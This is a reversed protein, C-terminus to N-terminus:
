ANTLIVLILSTLGLISLTVFILGYVRVTFVYQTEDKILRTLQNDYKRVMGPSALFLVGVLLFVFVTIGAVLVETSM